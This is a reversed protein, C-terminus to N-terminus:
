DRVELGTLLAEEPNRGRPPMLLLGLRATSGSPLLATSFERTVGNVQLHITAGRRTVRVEFDRDDPALEIPEVALERTQPEPFADGTGAPLDRIGVVQVRTLNRTPVDAAQVGLVGVVALWTPNGVRNRVTFEVQSPAAAAERRSFLLAARQGPEARLTTGDVHHATDVRWARAAARPDRFAQFFASSGGRACFGALLLLAVAVAAVALPWRRPAPPPAPPEPEPEVQATPKAEVMPRTVVPRPAHPSRAPLDPQHVTRQRIRELDVRLAAASPHRDEVEGELSRALVAELEADGEPFVQRLPPIAFPVPPVGSVLHHLTAALSYLDSRVEPRGQFQEVPAYGVTGVLTKPSASDGQLGRALGFDVLVVTRTNFRLIINGPKVDRHIIQLAHLYELINCLQIGWDLVLDLPAPRGTLSLYDALVKDLSDGRILEMVIFHDAEDVFHDMVQPIGPHSLGTLIDAEETFKRDVLAKTEEDWDTEDVHMQKLAVERQSFHTDRARYVSGMGGATLPQLIEYRGAVLTGAEM